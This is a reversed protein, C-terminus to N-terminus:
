TALAESSRLTGNRSRVTFMRSVRSMLSWRTERKRTRSSGILEAPNDKSGLPDAPGLEPLPGDTGLEADPAQCRRFACCRGGPGGLRRQRRRYRSVLSWTLYLFVTALLITTLAIAVIIFHSMNSNQSESNNTLSATTNRAPPSSSIPSPSHSAPETTQQVISGPESSPSEPQPRYMPSVTTSFTSPITSSVGGSRSAPVTQSSFVPVSIGPSVSYSVAVATVVSSSTSVFGPTLPNTELNALDSAQWRIQIAPGVMVIADSAFDTRSAGWVGGRFDSTDSTCTHGSPVCYAATEGDKFAPFGQETRPDTILCNSGVAFGDPCIAPSYYDFGRESLYTGWSPLDCSTQPAPTPFPPFQSPLKTTTLLWTITCPPTFITSLPALPPTFTEDSM